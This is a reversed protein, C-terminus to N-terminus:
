DDFMRTNPRIAEMYFSDPKRISGDPLVDLHFMGFGQIASDTVAKKVPDTFGASRLLKKLSHEDYMWQHVEGSQRFQGVELATIGDSGVIIRAVNSRIKNLMLRLYGFAQRYSLHRIRKSLRIPPSNISKIINRGEEGIRQLVFSENPIPNQRFYDQMLGGSKERVTQDYMELLIWEYDPDKSCDGDKIAKLKELYLRAIEELDPTAVRIIGGPKLVRFCEKMFVLADHRRFHEIINSHYVVDCSQDPLPIGKRLDYEIIRPNNSVIDINVWDPHYHDGCGLNVYQM